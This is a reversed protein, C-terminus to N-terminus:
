CCYLKFTWRHRCNHGHTHRYKGCEFCIEDIDYDHYRCNNRLLSAKNLNKKPIGCKSCVTQGM